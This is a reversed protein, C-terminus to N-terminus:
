YIYKRDGSLYLIDEGDLLRFINKPFDRKKIKYSNEINSSVLYIKTRKNKGEGISTLIEDLKYFVPDIDLYIVYYKSFHLEVFFSDLDEMSSVSFAFRQYVTDTFKKKFEKSRYFILAKKRNDWSYDSKLQKITKNKEM